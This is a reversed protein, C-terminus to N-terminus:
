TYPAGRYRGASVGDKGGRREESRSLPRLYREQLGNGRYEDVIDEVRGLSAKTTTMLAAVKNEGLIQRAHRIGDVALEHSNNGRRPRNANHLDSSCVDSSWDSIRM